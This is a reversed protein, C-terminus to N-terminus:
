MYCAIYNSLTLLRAGSFLNNRFTKLAHKSDQVMALLHGEFRPIEIEFAPGDRGSPHPISIKLSTGAKRSEAELAHQVKRETAAGDSAYAAVNVDHAFLRHLVDKLDVLLEEASLSSSIAKAAVMMPPIHPMPVSVCWLRLQLHTLQHRRFALMFTSAKTAADAGEGSLLGKLHDDSLVVVPGKAAGVLM